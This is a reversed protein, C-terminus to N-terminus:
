VKWLGDEREGSCACQRVVVAVVIIEKCSPTRPVRQGAAVVVVVYMEAIVVVGIGRAWGGM